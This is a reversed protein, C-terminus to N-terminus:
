VLSTLVKKLLTEKDSTNEVVTDCADPDLSHESVHSMDTTADRRLHILTAGRAKLFAQENAFRVDAVLVVDSAMTQLRYDLHQIFFTKSVTDRLVDTAITQMLERPSKGWRPDVTNKLPGHLQEDTFLFLTKFSRKIFLICFSM